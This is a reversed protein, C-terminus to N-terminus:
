IKSKALKSQARLRAMDEMYKDHAAEKADKANAELANM